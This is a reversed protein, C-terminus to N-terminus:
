TAIWMKLVLPAKAKKDLQLKIRLPNFGSHSFQLYYFTKGQTATLNFRGSEDTETSRLVTTWDQSREEVTVDPLAAGSPDTVMAGVSKAPQTKEFEIIANQGALSLCLLSLLSIVFLTARVLFDSYEQRSLTVGGIV